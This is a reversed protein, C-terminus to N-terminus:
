GCMMQVVATSVPVGESWEGSLSVKKLTPTHKALDLVMDSGEDGM